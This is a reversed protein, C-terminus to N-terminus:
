TRDKEPLKHQDLATAAKAAKAAAAQRESKTRGFKARNSEALKEAESRAHRKRARKLNVVDSM